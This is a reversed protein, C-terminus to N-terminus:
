DVQTATWTFDIKAWCNHYVGGYPMYGSNKNPWFVVAVGNKTQLPNLRTKVVLPDLQTYHTANKLNNINALGDSINDKEWGAWSGASGVMAIDPTWGVAQIWTKLPWDPASTTLSWTYDTMVECYANDPQLMFARQGPVRPYGYDPNDNLPNWETKDARMILTKSWADTFEGVSPEWMALRAKASGTGVAVYKSLALPTTSLVMVTLLLVALALAPPANRGYAHKM